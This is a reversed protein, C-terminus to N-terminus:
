EIQFYLMKVDYAPPDHSDEAAVTVTFNLGRQEGDPAAVLTKSDANYRWGRPIPGVGLTVAENEPEKVVIPYSQTEGSAVSFDARESIINGQSDVFIQSGISEIVPADNGPSPGMVLDCASGSFLGFFLVLVPTFLSKKQWASRMNSDQSPNKM